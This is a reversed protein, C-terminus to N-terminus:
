FVGFRDAWSKCICTQIKRGPGFLPAVHGHQQTDPRRGAGTKQALIACARPKGLGCLMSGQMGSNFCRTPIKTVLLAPYIKSKIAWIIISGTSSMHRLQFIERASTAVTSQLLPISGVLLVSQAEISAFWSRGGLSARPIPARPHYRTAIYPLPAVSRM